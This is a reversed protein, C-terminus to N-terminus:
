LKGFLKFEFGLIERLISLYNGSLIQNKITVFFCIFKQLWVIKIEQFKIDNNLTEYRIGPFFFECGMKMM